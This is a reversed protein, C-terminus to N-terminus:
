DGEGGEGVANHCAQCVAETHQQNLFAISADGDTAHGAHCTVCTAANPDVAQWRALFYHFHNNRGRNTTVQAHCKLCNADDIPVTLKAPQVAAHTYWALANHAGLLEAGVRGTVGVGSHCDICRTQKATHASALDSPQAATERQFFTSEPQTHCSACFTDQSEQTAAFAFGSGALVIGLVLLAGCVALVTLLRKRRPKTKAPAGSKSGAHSDGQAAPQPPAGTGTPKKGKPTQSAKSMSNRWAIQPPAKLIM